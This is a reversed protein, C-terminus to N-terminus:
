FTYAYLYVNNLNHLNLKKGGVKLWISLSTEMNGKPGYLTWKERTFVSTHKNDKIIVQPFVATRIKEEPNSNKLM